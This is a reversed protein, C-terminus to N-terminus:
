WTVTNWMMQMKDLTNLIPRHEFVDFDVAEIKKLIREGGSIIMRIEFKLRGDLQDCLKRGENFLPWTKSVEFAMLQRFAPSYDRLFLKSETYDFARMDELPLYVRNKTLDIAVDQWFNTLQLATCVMDSFRFAEDDKVGHLALVLRGVPNASRRSYDLLSDFTTHRSQVVDQEFAKILDDFLNIPLDFTRITQALAVFVPHTALGNAADMLMLRWQSLCELRRGDFAPEDAFDDAGRAFAYIAHMHPRM